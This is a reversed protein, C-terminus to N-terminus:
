DENQWEGLCHSEIAKIAYPYNPLRDNVPRLSQNARWHRIGPTRLDPNPLSVM